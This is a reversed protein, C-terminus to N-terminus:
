LRRSPGFPWDRASTSDRRRWHVKFAQFCFLEIRSWWIRPINADFHSESRRDLGSSGFRLILMPFVRWSLQIPTEVWPYQNSDWQGRTGLPQSLPWLETRNCRGFVSMSRNRSWMNWGRCIRHQVWLKWLRISILPQITKQSHYYRCWCVMGCLM